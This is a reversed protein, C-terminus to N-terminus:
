TCWQIVKHCHPCNLHGYVDSGGGYDPYSKYKVESEFYEIVAGCDSHTRQKAKAKNIRIVRAM